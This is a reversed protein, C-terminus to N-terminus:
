KCNVMLTVSARNGGTDDCEFITGSESRELPGYVFQTGTPTVSAGVFKALTTIRVGAVLLEFDRRGGGVLSCDVTLNRGETGTLPSPAIAVTQASARPALLFFAVWLVRMVNFLWIVLFLFVVTHYVPIWGM